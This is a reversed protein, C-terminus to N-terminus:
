WELDADFRIYFLKYSSAGEDKVFTVKIIVDPNKDFKGRYTLLPCITNLDCKDPLLEKSLLNGFQAKYGDIWIARFVEDTLGLRQGSFNKYFDKSNGSNYADLAEDVLGKYETIFDQPQDEGSVEQSSVQSCGSIVFLAVFFLLAKSLRKM